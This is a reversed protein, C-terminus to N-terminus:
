QYIALFSFVIILYLNSAAQFLVFLPTTTRTRLHCCLLKTICQITWITTTSKLYSFILLCFSRGPAFSPWVNYQTGNGNHKFIKLLLILKLLNLVIKLSKKTPWLPIHIIKLAGKASCRKCLHNNCCMKLLDSSIALYIRIKYDDLETM